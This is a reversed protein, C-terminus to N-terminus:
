TEVFENQEYFPFYVRLHLVALKSLRETLLRIENSLPELGTKIKPAEDSPEIKVDTQAFPNQSKGLRHQVGANWLSFFRTIVMKLVAARLKKRFVATVTSESHLHSICWNLVSQTLETSPPTFRSTIKSHDYEDDNDMNSDVNKGHQINEISKSIHTLASTMATRWAHSGHSTHETDMLSFESSFCLGPRSPGIAALEKKLKSLDSDEVSIRSGDHSPSAFVFQRFMSLLMFNANIDAADATLMLLRAHDLYLTEPYGPLPHIQYTQHGKTVPTTTPSPPLTASVPMPPFVVLDVLGTLFSVVIKNVKPFSQITTPPPLTKGVDNHLDPSATVRQYSSTFWARTM